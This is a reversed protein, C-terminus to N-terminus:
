LLGAEARNELHEQESKAYYPVAGLEGDAAKHCFYYYDTDDPNVAAEIADLGPNCIPGSPLGEIKYTDYRSAYNKRLAAPVQNATKYPYYVTSDLQLNKFGGEGFENIGDNPLTDLRNHLISSIVYMDDENAAEAQILSALTIVDEMSMGLEEAKKAVTSKKEGQVFRIKTHYLKDNYNSLFKYVVSYPNEGVYFDYTDPFLYGDLKYYRDSENDIGKLFEFDDDFEDSNCKELFKDASCVNNKELLDAMELISIGERFRINVVDTRNEVTQLKNIIAEYDKNTQVEYTGKEFGDASKTISAYLKFFTKNEILGNESLIDAVQDLTANEPINIEVNKEEERGVALMDNVGVMVYQGIMISVFVIMTLWVTRFIVRNKKAKMRRRKKDLRKAARLEHKNLQGGAPELPNDSYSSLDDSIYDDSNDGIERGSQLDISFDEPEEVPETTNSSINDTNDFEDGFDDKFEIKFNEIKERRKENLEDSM